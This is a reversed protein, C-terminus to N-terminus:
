DDRLCDGLSAFKRRKRTERNETRHINSLTRAMAKFMYNPTCSEPNDSALCSAITSHVLDYRDQLPVRLRHWAFSLLARYHQTVQEHKTM